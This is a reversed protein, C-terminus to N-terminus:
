QELGLRRDHHRVRGAIGRRVRVPHRHQHGRSAGTVEAGNVRITDGFPIVASAMCATLMALSPGAIFLWKSAQRPTFDEKFFMKGADAIPQLLGFIGARNPGPRDQLFAAVKREAWTSYTAILLTVGFVVLIIVAKVIFVSLEM